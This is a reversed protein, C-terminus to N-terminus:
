ADSHKRERSFVEDLLSMVGVVYLTAASILIVRSIFKGTFSVGEGMSTAILILLAIFASPLYKALSKESFINAGFILAALLMLVIFFHYEPVAVMLWFLMMAALGGILTSALSKLGAAKGKSLEPSMSYIAAYIMILMEGTLEAAIFLVALPLAAITSKLATTAAVRSYGRQFGGHGPTPQGGPPDPFMGHALVYFFVALASSWAFNLAFMMALAEHASGMMSLILVAILSMLGLMVPGGRNVMYFIHFLVLGLAIIFVLPYPLLFLTFILGIAFAVVVYGFLAFAQKLTPGPLPIALFLATFIPTLFYLPWQLGFAIAVSVTVGVAYRVIRATRLDRTWPRHRSNEGVAPAVPHMNASVNISM